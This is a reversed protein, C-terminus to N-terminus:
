HMPRTARPSAGGAVPTVPSTTRLLFSGVGDRTGRGTYSCQCVRMCTRQHNWCMVLLNSGTQSCECSRSCSEISCRLILDDPGYFPTSERSSSFSSSRLSNERPSSEASSSPVWTKAERAKLIPTDHTSPGGANPLATTLAALCFLPGFTTFFQMKSPSTTAARISSITSPSQSISAYVHLYSFPVHSESM